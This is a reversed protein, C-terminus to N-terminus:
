RLDACDAIVQLLIKRIEDLKRPVSNGNEDCYTRKHFELMISICDCRSKGSLVAGPVFCGSYPDNVSISFGAESFRKRVIGALEPPTYVPDTGICLDPMRMDQRRGPIIEDSYSHLDVLLIGPHRGCVYNMREHHKRYYELTKIKVDETVRKIVTGDYAREYCFGMGYREMVEEPGTFREVDCLLRSVPFVICMDGGRYAEPVALSIDTDQMIGHYRFFVDEPVCVSEMLEPPFDRGNHPVHFVPFRPVVRFGLEAIRFFEQASYFRIGSSLMAAGIFPQVGYECEKTKLNLDFTRNDRPPFDKLQKINERVTFGQQEELIRIIEKREEPTSFRVRMMGNKRFNNKM